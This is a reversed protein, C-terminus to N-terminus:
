HVLYPIDPRNSLHHACITSIETDPHPNRPRCDHERRQSIELQLLETTSESPRAHEASDEQKDVIYGYEDITILTFLNMFTLRPVKSSLIFFITIFLFQKSEVTDRIGSHVSYEDGSHMGGDEGILYMNIGYIWDVGIRHELGRGMGQILAEKFFRM